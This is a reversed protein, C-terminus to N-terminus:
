KLTRERLRPKNLKISFIDPKKRLFYYIRRAATWALSAREPLLRNRWTEEDAARDPVMFPPHVLPFAMTEARRNLFPARMTHTADSGSGINSVLNINPTVAVSHDLWCSLQYPYYWTNIRGEFANNLRSAWFRALTQSGFMDILWGHDRIMPWLRMSMDTRNWSRRWTAWGSINHFNSFHYSWDNRVKDNLFNSGAITRVRPDTDYRELMEACFRFFSPDPVCDDELLIASDVEKFVNDLGSAIRRGCGLNRDCFDRVLQCKWDTSDIVARAAACRPADDPREPRPGDAVVFFHRPAAASIVELVKRTHAPRNFIFLVVPTNLQPKTM